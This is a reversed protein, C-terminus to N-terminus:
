LEGSYAGYPIKRETKRGNVVVEGIIQHDNLKRHCRGIRIEFEKAKESQVTLWFGNWHDLRLIEYRFDVRFDGGYRNGSSLRTWRHAEAGASGTDYFLRGDKEQFLGSKGEARFGDASAFGSRWEGASLVSATLVAWVMLFIRM